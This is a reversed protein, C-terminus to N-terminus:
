AHEADIDNKGWPNGMTQGRRRSATQWLGVRPLREEAVVKNM